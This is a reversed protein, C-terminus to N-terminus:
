LEVYKLIWDELIKVKDDYDPADYIEKTLKHNGDIFQVVEGHDVVLVGPVFRYDEFFATNKYVDPEVSYFYVNYKFSISSALDSFMLESSCVDEFDHFVLVFSEKNEKMEDIYQGQKVIVEDFNDTTDWINYYDENDYTDYYRESLKIQGDKHTRIRTLEYFDIEHYPVNSTDYGYYPKKSLKINNEGTYYWYGGVVWIKNEDWGMKVLFEKMMGAYGGGGCMLFIYKNKPFLEEIFALSEKYAPEYSGDDNQTFLTLGRYTEGVEEPLNNVPIIYPLPVVEFGDVYGDLFRNGGISEYSAPDDLMRMDRYVSDDRGLYKDITIENVNKDIGLEGRVGDTKEPIPIGEKNCRIGDIIIISNDVFYKNYTFVSISSIVLFIFLYLLQKKISLKHTSNTLLLMYRFLEILFLSIILGGVIDTFWHVGSIFRGITIAFILIVDIVNIIKILKKEKFLINNIILSSGCFCIALLTHSSPYSPDLVGDILIPRYNIVIKEFLLYVGLVVIYFFALVYLEIDVKKLSKRKILEVLGILGYICAMLLPIYGLYKTINYITMNSSLYNRFFENIKFLGISSNNPGISSVGVKKIIITYAVAIMLLILTIILNKKRKNM